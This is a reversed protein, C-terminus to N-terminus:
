KGKVIAVITMKVANDGFDSVKEFHSNKSRAVPQRVRTGRAKDATAAIVLHRWIPVARISM